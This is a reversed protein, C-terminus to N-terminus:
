KAGFKKPSMIRQLKQIAGIFAVLSRYGEPLGGLFLDYDIKGYEHVLLNRLGVAKVLNLAIRKSVLKKQGLVIFVDRSATPVPAGQIALLRRGIAVSQDVSLQVLREIEYHNSEQARRSSSVHPKLDNLVELLSTMKERIVEPSM